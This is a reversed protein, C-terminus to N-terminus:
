IAGAYLFIHTGGYPAFTDQYGGGGGGWQFPGVSGYIHMRSPWRLLMKVNPLRM